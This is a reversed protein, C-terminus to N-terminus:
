GLSIEVLSEPARPGSRLHSTHLHGSGHGPAQCLSPCVHRRCFSHIVNSRCLCLALSEGLLESSLSAACVPSAKKPLCCRFLALLTPVVEGPLCFLCRQHFPLSPLPKLVVHYSTHRPTRCHGVSLGPWATPVQNGSVLLFVGRVSDEPLCVM